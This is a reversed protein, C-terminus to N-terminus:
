NFRSGAHEFLESLFERATGWYVKINLQAYYNSLYEQSRQKMKDSDNPGPIVIFNNVKLRPLSRLIVRFNWDGLQYGIFLLTTSQLARRVVTPLLDDNTSVTLYDLYDDETVVMSELVDTQGHLHYVLPSAVTPGTENPLPQLEQISTHWRCFDQRPDKRREKLAQMMLDDYNTTIYLPLPLKALLRHSDNPQENRDPLRASKLKSAIRAKAYLRDYKIAVYQSVKILDATNEFPYEFERALEEAVERGLPLLEAAAGAGLFPTCRGTEIREILLSWDERPLLSRSM